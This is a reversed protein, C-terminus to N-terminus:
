EISNFFEQHERWEASGEMMAGINDTSFKLCQGIFNSVSELNHENVIEKIEELLEEEIRVTLQEYRKKVRARVIFKSM